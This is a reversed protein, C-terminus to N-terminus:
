GVLFEGCIKECVHCPEGHYYVRLNKAGSKSIIRKYDKAFLMIQHRCKHCINAEKIYMNDERYTNWIRGYVGLHNPDHPTIIKIPM